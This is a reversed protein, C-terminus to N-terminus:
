EDMNETRMIEAEEQRREEEEREKKKKENYYDMTSSSSGKYNQQMSKGAGQLLRGVFGVSDSVTARAVKAGEVATNKAFIGVNKTFNYDQNLGERWSENTAARFVVKGSNSMIIKGNQFASNESNVGETALNKLTRFTQQPHVFAHIGSGVVSGAKSIINNPRLTSADPTTQEYINKLADTVGNSTNTKTDNLTSEGGTVAASGSPSSPTPPPPTTPTTSAPPENGGGFFRNVRAVSKKVTEGARGFASFDGKSMDVTVDGVGQIARGTQTKAVDGAYSAARGGIAGVTTGFAQTGLYHMPSQGGLLGDSFFANLYNDVSSRIIKFGFVLSFLIVIIRTSTLSFNEALKESSEQEIATWFSTWNSSDGLVGNYILLIAYTVGVSMFAYIMANNLVMGLAELFKSKTPAFPWLSIAVPLYLVAFGLKFCIDIFYMGIAISILFATLYVALGCLLFSLHPMKIWCASVVGPVDLGLCSYAVKTAYCLIGHGLMFVRGLNKYIRNLMNTMNTMTKDSIIGYGSNTSSSLDRLPAEIGNCSESGAASSGGTSSTQFTNWPSESKYTTGGSVIVNNNADVLDEMKAGRVVIQNNITDINSTGRAWEPVTEASKSYYGTAGGTIDPLKGALALKAFNVCTEWKEKDAGDYEAMNKIITSADWSKGKWSAYQDTNSVIDKISLKQGNQAQQEYYKKRNMITNAVVRMGTSDDKAEGWLTAALFITDDDLDSTLQADATQTQFSILGFVVPLIYIIRLFKYMM